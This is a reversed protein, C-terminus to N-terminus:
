LHFIIIDQFLITATYNFLFSYNSSLNHRYLWIDEMHTSQTHSTLYHSTLFVM